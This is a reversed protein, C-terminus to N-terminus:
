KLLIMKKTERFYKTDINYLYVGASVPQGQNNTANWQVSRFGSSQNANVLNNVVNGLMDYITISVYSDAELSYSLKTVPNFPNPYNQSLIYHKPSITNFLESELTSKYTFFGLTDSSIIIDNIYTEVFWSFTGSSLESQDLAIDFSDIDVSKSSGTINEFYLSYNSFDSEISLKYPLETLSDQNQFWHFSVQMIEESDTAFSDVLTPYITEIQSPLFQAIFASDSNLIISMSDNSIFNSNSHWGLFIYGEDPVAQLRIPVDNFFLNTDPFSEIEIDHLKIHGYNPNSINIVLNSKDFYQFYNSLHDKVQNPRELAFNKMSDIVGEWGSVNNTTPHEGWKNFHNPIETEINSKLSDIFYLVRDPKFVTNILVLFKQIFENKFSENKILLNFPKHAWTENGPNLFRELHNYSVGCTPTGDGYQSLSGLGLSADTDMLIWRWQSNSPYTNKWIKVNNALFDCNGFYINTIYYNILEDTDISSKLQNFVEQLEMDSSEAYNIMENYDDMNGNIVYDRHYKQGLLHINNKEYGYNHEIFSTNTRERINHIGWYSGNIYVVVPQYSQRDIDIKNAVISQVLGDRFMSEIWDSGSNRLMFTNFSFISKDSFIQYNINETGYINRFHVSLSKQPHLRSWGGHIKVGAQSKFIQNGNVDFYELSVPREWNQFFNAIKLENDDWIYPDFLDDRSGWDGHLITGNTGKVYIGADSGFLFDPETAISIIPLNHNQNIIYTCSVIESPLLNNSFTRARIVTTSDVLIPEEYTISSANPISGDLTYKVVYPDDSNYIEIFQADHYTGSNNLFVPEPSRIIEEYSINSNESLPTSEFFYNWTQENGLVRGYSINTLQNPFSISDVYEGNSNILGLEEGSKKLKFNSHYGNVGINIDEPVIHYEGPYYNKGNAWIIFYNHAEIFTSDPLIFKYPNSFDDTIFYGSINVTTDEANFLEIWDSFNSFDSDINSYSNSALFENIYIDPINRNNGSLLSELFIVFFIVNVISYIKNRIM